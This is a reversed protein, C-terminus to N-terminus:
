EEQLSDWDLAEDNSINRAAKKGLVKDLNIPSIGTGPRKFDLMEYTIETGQAIDMAAVISRRAFKRSPAESELPKKETNGFIGKQLLDLNVNITKLDHLDMAHYHDNGPLTKDLTFHKEIIRAGLIAAVSLLVMNKDPMTHDSYGIIHNPYSDLLGKIMNLHSNQYETPYNLVCHLLAVQTDPGIVDLAHNIEEITSAGTSLIIPKDTGAIAKLLPVNTIDSSSIKFAPMFDDLYMASDIDFPTSLFLIEQSDAYNKLERYESEGFIDYKQFLEYQSSTSEKSTDWYSPSNKSAIKGAKYTQFKIADAGGEAAKLVLQKAADMPSQDTTSAIEYYNVGAEAIIFPRSEQNIETNGIKMKRAM